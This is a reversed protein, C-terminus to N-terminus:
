GIAPLPLIPSEGSCDPKVFERIPIAPFSEPDSDPPLIVILMPNRIKMEHQSSAAIITPM